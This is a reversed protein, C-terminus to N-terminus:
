PLCKIPKRFIYLHTYQSMWVKLLPGCCQTEHTYYYDSIGFGNTRHLLLFISANNKCSVYPFIQFELNLGFLLIGLLLALKAWNFGNQVKNEDWRGM